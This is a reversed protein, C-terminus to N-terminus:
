APMERVAAHALDAAGLEQGAQQYHFCISASGPATPRRVVRQLQRAALPEGSYIFPDGM